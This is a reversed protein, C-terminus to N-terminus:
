LKNLQNLQELEAIFTKFRTMETTFVADQLDIVHKPLPQMLAQNMTQLQAHVTCFVDVKEQFNKQYTTTQQLIVQKMDTSAKLLMQPLNMEWIETMVEHVQHIADGFQCVLIMHSVFKPGNLRVALQETLAVHFEACSASTM